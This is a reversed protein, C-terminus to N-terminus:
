KRFRGSARHWIKLGMTKLPQPLRPYVRRGITEVRVLLDAARRETRTQEVGNKLSVLLSERRAHQQLSKDLLVAIDMADRLTGNTTLWLYDEDLKLSHHELEHPIRNRVEAAREIPIYFFVNASEAFKEVSGSFALNVFGRSRPNLILEHFRYPDDTILAGSNLISQPIRRADPTLIVTEFRQENNDRM